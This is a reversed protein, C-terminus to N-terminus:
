SSVLVNIFVNNRKMTLSTVRAESEVNNHTLVYFIDFVLVM